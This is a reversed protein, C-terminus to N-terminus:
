FKLIMSFAMQHLNKTMVKRMHGTELLLPLLVNKVMSGVLFKYKKEENKMRMHLEQQDADSNGQELPQIYVKEPKFGILTCRQILIRNALELLQETEWGFTSWWVDPALMSKKALDRGFEHKGLKYTMIQELTKDRM